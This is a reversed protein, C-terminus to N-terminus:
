RAITIERNEKASRIEELCLRVAWAASEATVTGSLKGRQLGETFDKLEFYYGDEEPLDPCYKEGGNPFVTLMPNKSMDLEITAKELIHLARMNFGFSDSCIWGGASSAVFGNEYHYLTSIHSLGGNSEFAGVSRVSAPMGFMHILMDADHIHLDLAAEGSRKGDVIWNDWAWDPKASFRSFESYRAKGYDGQDLIRKVESYAPWYRICQGVSFLRDTEKVKKLILDTGETDLAMPKELLVHYGAELAAVTHEVHLFTPLCIDVFDFDGDRLMLDFDTYKRVSSLDIDKESTQINGGGVLSGINLRDAEADCIASLEVTGLRQYIGIHTKGMFGM